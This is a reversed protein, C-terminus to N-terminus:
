YEVRHYRSEYLHLPKVLNCSLPTIRDKGGKSRIVRIIGHNHDIQSKKLVVAESIRLGASYITMLITDDM